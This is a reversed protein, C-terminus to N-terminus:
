CIKLEKKLKELEKIEIRAIDLIENDKMKMKLM